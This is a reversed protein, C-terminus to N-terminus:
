ILLTYRVGSFESGPCNPGVLRSRSQSKLANIVKLKLFFGFDHKSAIFLTITVWVFKM